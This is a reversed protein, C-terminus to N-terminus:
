EYIYYGNERFTAKQNKRKTKFHTTGKVPPQIMYNFIFAWLFPIGWILVSNIIKNSHDLYDTKVVKVQRWIAIILHIVLLVIIIAM